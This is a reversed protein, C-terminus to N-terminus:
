RAREANLAEMVASHLNFVLSRASSTPLYLNWCGNKNEVTLMVGNEDGHATIGADSVPDSQPPFLVAEIMM